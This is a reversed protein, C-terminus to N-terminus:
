GIDEKEIRRDKIHIVRRGSGQFLSTDHTALLVTTGMANIDKFLGM